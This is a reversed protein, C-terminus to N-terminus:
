HMQACGDFGHNLKLKNNMCRVTFPNCTVCLCPELTLSQMIFIHFCSFFLLSCFANDAIVFFFCLFIVLMLTRFEDYRLLLVHSTLYLAIAVYTVCYM